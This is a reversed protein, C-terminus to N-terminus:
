AKVIYRNLTVKVGKLPFEVEDTRLYVGGCKQIVRNSGVNEVVADISAEKYGISFLHSLVRRCAETMYGKNWFKKGIVYGLVPVGDVIGCVDIGGMLEGSERNVIAFNLREPNSYEDVWQSLIRKTVEISKHPPWTLYKTVEPNNAWGYFMAEADDISFPRLILRETELTLM